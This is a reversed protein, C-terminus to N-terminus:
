AFGLAQEIAEPAEAVDRGPRAEAETLCGLCAFGPEGDVCSVAVWGISALCSELAPSLCRM